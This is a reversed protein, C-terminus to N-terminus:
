KLPFLTKINCEDWSFLLYCGLSMSVVKNHWCYCSFGGSLSFSDFLLAPMYSHKQLFWIKICNRKRFSLHLGGGWMKMWTYSLLRTYSWFHSNLYSGFLFKYSEEIQLESIFISAAVKMIKYKFCFWLYSFSCSILCFRWTLVHIRSCLEFPMFQKWCWHSIGNRCRWM